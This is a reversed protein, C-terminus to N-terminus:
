VAGAAVVSEVDVGISEVVRVAACAAAVAVVAAVGRTVM